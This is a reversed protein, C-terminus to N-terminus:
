ADISTCAYMLLAGAFNCAHGLSPWFCRSLLWQRCCGCCHQRVSRGHLLLGCGFVATHPRTSACRLVAAAVLTLWRGPSCQVDGGRDRQGCAWEGAMGAGQHPECFYGYEGATDFKISFSEGPANLYDEHSIADANV